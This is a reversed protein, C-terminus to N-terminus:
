VVYHGVYDLGSKQEQSKCADRCSLYVITSICWEVAFRGLLYHGKM